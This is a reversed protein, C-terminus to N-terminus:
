WEVERVVADSPVCFSMVEQPLLSDIVLHSFSVREVTSDEKFYETTLIETPFHTGKLCEHRINLSRRMVKGGASRSEIYIIKNEHIKLVTEGLLRVLSKPPTWYSIITDGRVEYDTPRYGIHSLGYDAEQAAALSQAFPPYPSIRSTIRFATKDEPYYITTLNKEFLIWQNVPSMVRLTVKDPLQCYLLGSLAETLDGQTFEREFSASITELPQALSSVAFFTSILIAALSRFM